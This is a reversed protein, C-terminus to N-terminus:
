KDDPTVTTKSHLIKRFHSSKNQGKNEYVTPPLSLVRIMVDHFAVEGRGEVAVERKGKVEREREREELM